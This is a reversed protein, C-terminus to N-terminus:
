VRYVVDEYNIEPSTNFSNLSNAFVLGLDHYTQLMINKMEDNNKLVHNDMQKIHERIMNERESEINTQVSIILSMLNSVNDLIEKFTNKKTDNSEVIQVDDTQAECDKMISVHIVIDPDKFADLAFETFTMETESYNADTLEKQKITQSQMTFDKLVDKNNKDVYSVRSLSLNVKDNEVYCRAQIM